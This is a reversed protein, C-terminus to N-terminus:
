KGDWLRRSKLSLKDLSNATGRLIDAASIYGDRNEIARFVEVADADLEPQTISDDALPDSLPLTVLQHLNIVACLRADARLAGQLGTKTLGYEISNEAMVLARLRRGVGPAGFGFVTQSRRYRELQRRYIDDFVPDM